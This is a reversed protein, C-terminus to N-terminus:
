TSGTVSHVRRLPLGEQYYHEAERYRGQSYSLSGLYTLLVPLLESPREFQRALALAEQYLMEAQSFDGQYHLVGGLHILLTCITSATELRVPWTYVLISRKRPTNTREFPAVQM